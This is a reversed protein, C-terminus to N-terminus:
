LLVEFVHMAPTVALEGCTRGGSDGARSEDASTYNAIKEPM